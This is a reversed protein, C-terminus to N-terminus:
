AEALAKIIDWRTIIGVIKGQDVVPLRNIRHKVMLRAAVDVPTAPSCAIVKKTMIERVPTAFKEKLVEAPEKCMEEPPPLYNSIDRYTIMGVPRKKEVVPMGSIDFLKFKNIITLISENPHCTTVSRNMIEHVKM